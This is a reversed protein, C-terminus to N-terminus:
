YQVSFQLEQVDDDSESLLAKSWSFRLPGFPSAWRLEIGAAARLSSLDSYYKDGVAGFDLFPALSIKQTRFVKADFDGEITGYLRSLGGIVVGNENRAGISNLDFGRLTSTGGVFFRRYFPYESDGYLDGIGTSFRFHLVPTGFFRRTQYYYDHAYNAYYYQLDLIPLGLEVDINIRQGDTPFQSSDRTDHSLQTDLLLTDIKDGHKNTFDMYVTSLSNIKINDYKLLIRYKGEDAYPIGYGYEGGISDISYDAANGAAEIDSAGAAIHYSVGEDTHYFKDLAFSIDKSDSAFSFNAKFDNGTGFVNPTDLGVQFAVKTDTSIGAGINFNGVSGEDVNVLLDIENVRGEVAETRINVSNFYGLRVIRRRSIEIRKGSYLEQEFQLFERRIVEDSTRSNGEINIYRVYILEGAVVTYTVSIGGAEEDIETDYSVQAFAYGYDALLQRVRASTENADRSSFIDGPVQILQENLKEMSIKDPIDGVFVAAWFEDDGQGSVTYREGESVNIRIDIHRKDPSIEIQHSAIEFRVFGEEYYLTRLRELDSNFRSESFLHRDSFFNLVGRTETRMERRLTWGSFYENGTVEISRVIAQFGEEVEFSLAVRNRPLPSVLSEVKVNYFNRDIYVEELKTEAEELLVRDFARAKVIGASQLFEELISDSLENVGSFSVEAIVPSEQVEIVVVDDERLVDVSRFLGSDFLAKIIEVSKSETMTDGITLNIRNFVVGPDFRQLGEIRIDSVVFTFDDQSLAKQGTVSFLLLITLLAGIARQALRMVMAGKILIM